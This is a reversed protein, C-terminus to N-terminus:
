LACCFSVEISATSILESNVQGESPNHLRTCIACETIRAAISVLDAPGIFELGSGATSVPL